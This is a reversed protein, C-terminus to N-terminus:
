GAAATSYLVFRVEGATDQLKGISTGIPLSAPFLVVTYKGPAPISEAAWTCKGPTRCRYCWRLEDGPPAPLLVTTGRACIGMWPGGDEDDVVTDPFSLDYTVTNDRPGFKTLRFQDLSSQWDNWSHNLPNYVFDPDDPDNPDDNYQGYDLVTLKAMALPANPDRAAAATAAATAADM